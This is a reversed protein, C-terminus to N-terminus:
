VDFETSDHLGDERLEVQRTFVAEAFRRDHSVAVICGPYAAFLERVVPGSLPSLNRTPEDLLLVDPQRDAMMLFMLKAKQGGSLARCPHDMEEPTFKMSGLAIRSRTTEEKDWSVALMEVPTSDMDLMDCPDQPMYFVNLDGRAKLREHLVRLLTSKGAGNRGTILLKEGARVCLRVDRALVRGGATLEPLAADLVVKGAPQPRCTLKAFIAEEAEPMDTMDEAEREFRRGMSMVAHMKKKLLRGGAPDQRSIANQQHEVKQRIQEYRRIKKDYEEREKRAVQEQHAMSSARTSVFTEYDMRYVVARPVQRRRLREMHVIVNAARALLAEDHSVFVTPIECGALFDELWRVTQMDLDNSPEDLLLLSPKGMLIRCLQLKVREGGSFTEMRQESYFLESDLAFRRALDALERPTQDFFVPSEAFFEYASKGRDPAPLEQPLYGRAGTVIIEGSVSIYPTEEGALLRLLTSKGNGEEGILAAREDDRLSFSLNEMLPTLDKNHYFSLNKIQLM